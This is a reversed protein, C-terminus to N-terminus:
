QADTSMEVVHQIMEPSFTELGLSRSEEVILIDSLTTYSM